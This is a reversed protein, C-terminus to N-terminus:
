HYPLTDLMYLFNTKHIFILSLYESIKANKTGDYPRKKDCLYGHSAPITTIKYINVQIKVQRYIHIHTYRRHLHPHQCAILQLRGDTDGLTRLQDGAGLVDVDKAHDITSGLSM